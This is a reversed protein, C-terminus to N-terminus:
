LRFEHPVSQKDFSKKELGVVFHRCGSQFNRTISIIKIPAARRNIFLRAIVVHQSLAFLQKCNLSRGIIWIVAQANRSWTKGRVRRYYNFVPAIKDSWFDSTQEACTVWRSPRSASWFLFLNGRRPCGGAVQAAMSFSFQGAGEICFWSCSTEIIWAQAFHRVLKAVCLLNTSPGCISWKRHIQQEPCAGLFRFTPSRARFSVEGAAAPAEAM